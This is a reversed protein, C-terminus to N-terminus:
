PLFCPLSLQEEQENTRVILFITTLCLQPILCLCFSLGVHFLFYKHLVKSEEVCTM